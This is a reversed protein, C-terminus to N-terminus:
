QVPELRDASRRGIGLRDPDLGAVRDSDRRDHSQGIRRGGPLHLDRHGRRRGSQVCREPRDHRLEFTVGAPLTDTLTVNTAAMLGNNTATVVYDFSVGTAAVPTTSAIQVSLDTAPDVETTVSASNNSTNPDDAQSSVSATETFTGPIQAQLVVTVLVPVNAGLNGLNAVVQGSADSVTGAATTASVFLLGSPVPLTAVVNGAADPGLNDVTILYTLNNGVLAPNPSESMVVAVDAAAQVTTTVTASELAPTPDTEQSTITASDIISGVSGAGTQVPITVTASAGAGLTGLYVTVLGPTMTPVVYGQTTSVPELTVGSPLQDTLIVDHAANYGLNAITLTYTVTGGALVPNPTAAASLQLNIQGQVAVDSCFESTDDSLSTATASLYQGPLASTPMTM